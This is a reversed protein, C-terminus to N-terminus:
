GRREGGEWIRAVVMGSESEIIKVVTLIEYLHFQVTNPTHIPIANLRYIAKPPISMKVNNLRGVHFTEM